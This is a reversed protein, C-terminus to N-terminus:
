GKVEATERERKDGLLMMEISTALTASTQLSNRTKGGNNYALM